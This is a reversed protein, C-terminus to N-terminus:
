VPEIDDIEPAIQLLRKGGIMLNEVLAMPTEFVEKRATFKSDSLIGEGDNLLYFKEGKYTFEVDYGMVVYDYLLVGLAKCSYGEFSNGYLERNPMYRKNFPYGYLDYGVYDRPDNEPTIKTEM